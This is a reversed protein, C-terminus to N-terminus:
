KFFAPYKISLGYLMQLMYFTAHRKNVYKFYQLQIHTGQRSPYISNKYRRRAMPAARFQVLQLFLELAPQRRFM